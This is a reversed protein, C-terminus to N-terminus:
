MLRRRSFLFVFIFIWFGIQALAGLSALVFWVKSRPVVSVSARWYRITLYLALPATILTPWILFSPLVILSLALIDWRKRQNELKQLKGKRLGSDICTPCLIEGGLDIRCLSCLFRGCSDCPVVARKSPHYFCSSETQEVIREAATASAGRFYAPFVRLQIATGCAPCPTLDPTNVHDASLLAYCRSCHFESV